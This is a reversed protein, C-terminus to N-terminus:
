GINGSFRGATKPHSPAPTTSRTPADTLVAEPRAVFDVEEVVTETAWRAIVALVRQQVLIERRCLRAIEGEAFCRRNREHEDRRPFGEDVACTQLRMVAHEDVGTNAADAM